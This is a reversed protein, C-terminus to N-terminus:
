KVGRLVKIYSPGPRTCDLTCFCRTILDTTKKSLDKWHLGYHCCHNALVAPDCQLRFTPNKCFSPGYVNRSPPPPEYRVQGQFRLWCQTGTPMFSLLVSLNGFIGGWGRSIYRQMSAHSALFPLHVVTGRNDSKHGMAIFTTGACNTHTTATYYARIIKQSLVRIGSNARWGPSSTM